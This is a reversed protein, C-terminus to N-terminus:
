SPELVARDLRRDVANGLVDQREAYPWDAPGQGRDYRLAWMSDNEKVALAVRGTIYRGALREIIRGMVDAM